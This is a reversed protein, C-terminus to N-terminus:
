PKVALWASRSPPIGVVADAPGLFAGVKLMVTTARYGWWWWLRPEDGGDRVRNGGM